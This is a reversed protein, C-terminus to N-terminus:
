SGLTLKSLSSCTNLFGRWCLELILQMCWLLWDSGVKLTIHESLRWILLIELNFVIKLPSNLLSFCLPLSYVLIQVFVLNM